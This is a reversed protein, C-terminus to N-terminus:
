SYTAPLISSSILSQTIRDMSRHLLSPSPVDRLAGTRIPVNIIKVDDKAELEGEV